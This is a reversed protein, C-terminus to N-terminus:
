QAYFGAVAVIIVIAVPIVIPPVFWPAITQWFGGLRSAPTPSLNIMVTWWLLNRTPGLRRLIQRDWTQAGGDKEIFSVSRSNALTLEFM